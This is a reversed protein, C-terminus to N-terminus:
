LAARARAAPAGAGGLRLGREALPPLIEGTLAAYLQEVMAHGRESIKSLQQAPTLGAVDPATDGEPVVNKLAAVRVMFFEDLNRAVICAFKLRELPPNT